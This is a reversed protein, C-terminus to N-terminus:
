RASIIATYNSSEDNTEEQKNENEEKSKLQGWMPDLEDNPIKEMIHKFFSLRKRPLNYKREKLTKLMEKKFSDGCEALMEQLSKALEPELEITGWVGFRQPNASVSYDLGIAAATSYPTVSMLGHCDANFIYIDINSKKM